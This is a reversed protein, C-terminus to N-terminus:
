SQRGRTTAAPALLVRLARRARHLQSKSTGVSTGALAAISEHTMGEVDHLVLTTRYGDPLLAIARELDIRGDRDAGPPAALPVEEVDLLSVGRRQRFHDRAVNLAITSLWTAFGAEARFGDLRRCARIWAEQLVDECLHQDPGVLRHVFMALRPTHRRYLARFAAEDGHRVIRLIAEQDQLAGDAENM